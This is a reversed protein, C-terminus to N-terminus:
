RLELRFTIRAIVKKTAADQAEVIKISFEEAQERMKDEAKKAAIEGDEVQQSLKARMEEFEKKKRELEAKLETNFQRNEASEKARAAEEREKKEREAKAEPSNEERNKQASESKIREIEATLEDVRGKLETIMRKHKGAQDTHGRGKALEAELEESRVRFRDAEQTKADLSSSLETNKRALEKLRMSQELMKEEVEVYETPSGVHKSSILEDLMGRLRVCEAECTKLQSEYETLKTIKIDKKLKDIESDKSAVVAEAQRIRSKLAEILHTERQMKQVGQMSGVSGIQSMLGNILKSRRGIEEEMQQVRAKLRHNDELLQNAYQKLQLTNDYLTEKDKAINRPILKAFKPARRQEIGSCGYDM